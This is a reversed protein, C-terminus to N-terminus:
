TTEKVRLNARIRPQQNLEPNYCISGCQPCRHTHHLPRLVAQQVRDVHPAFQEDHVVAARIPLHGTEARPLQAPRLFFSRRLEQLLQDMQCM